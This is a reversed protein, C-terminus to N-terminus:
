SFAIAFPYCHARCRRGRNALDTTPLAVSVDREGRFDKVRVVGSDLVPAFAARDRRWFRVRHGQESLHVAAAYCGHGGGLVAVEM